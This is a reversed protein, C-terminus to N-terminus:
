IPHLRRSVLRGLHDWRSCPQMTVYHLCGYRLFHYKCLHKTNTSSLLWPFSFSHIQFIFPRMEISLYFLRKAGGLAISSIDSREGKTVKRKLMLYNLSLMFWVIMWLLCSVILAKVWAWFPAGTGDILAKKAIEWESETSSYGNNVLEWVLSPNERCPIYFIILLRLECPTVMGLFFGRQAVLSMWRPSRHVDSWLRPVLEHTLIQLEDLSLPRFGVRICWVHSDCWDCAPALMNGICQMWGSDFLVAYSCNLIYNLLIRVIDFLGDNPCIVSYGAKIGNSLALGKWSPHCRVWVRDQNLLNLVKGLAGVRLAELSM